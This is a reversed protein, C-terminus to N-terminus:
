CAELIREPKQDKVEKVIETQTDELVNEDYHKHILMDGRDKPLIPLLRIDPFTAQGEKGGWDFDILLLREGDVIFSPPRLDGHVYGHQHVDM